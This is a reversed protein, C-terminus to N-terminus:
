EIRLSNCIQRYTRNFAPLNTRSYVVRISIMKDETVLERQAVHEPASTDVVLTYFGPDSLPTGDSRSKVVISLAARKEYGGAFWRLIPPATDVPTLSYTQWLVGRIEAGKDLPVNMKWGHPVLLRVNKGTIGIPLTKSWALEEEKPHPNRAGLLSLAAVLVAFRLALRKRRNPKPSPLDAKVAETHDPENM